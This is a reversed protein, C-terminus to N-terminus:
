LDPRHLLVFHYALPSQKVDNSNCSPTVTVDTPPNECLHMRHVSYSVYESSTGDPFNSKKIEGFYVKNKTKNKCDYTYFVLGQM